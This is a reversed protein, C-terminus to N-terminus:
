HNRIPEAEILAQISETGILGWIAPAILRRITGTGILRRVTGTGVWEALYEIYYGSELHLFSYGDRSISITLYFSSIIPDNM